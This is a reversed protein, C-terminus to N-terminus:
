PLPPTPTVTQSQLVLKTEASIDADRRVKILHYSSTAEDLVAYHPSPEWFKVYVVIEDGRRTVREILTDYGSTPQTGRFAAIAYYQEFDLAELKALASQSILDAIQDIDDQTSVLLLRSEKLAYDGLDSQELSEFVLDIEDITCATMMLVAGILLWLMYKGKM